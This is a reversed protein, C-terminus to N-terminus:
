KFCSLNLEAFPPLTVCVAPANTVAIVAVFPATAIVRPSIVIGTPEYADGVDRAFIQTSYLKKRTQNKVGVPRKKLGRGTQRRCEGMNPAFWLGGGAASCEGVSPSFRLGRGTQRRCEGM